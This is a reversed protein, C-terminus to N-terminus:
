SAASTLKLQPLYAKHQQQKQPPPSQLVGNQFLTLGISPAGSSKGINLFLEIQITERPVLIIYMIYLVVYIYTYIYIINCAYVKFHTHDRIHERRGESYIAIWISERPMLIAICLSDGPM